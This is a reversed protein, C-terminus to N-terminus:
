RQLDQQGGLPRPNRCLPHASRTDRGRPRGVGVRAGHGATWPARTGVRRRLPGPCEWGAGPVAARVTSWPRHKITKRLLSGFRMQDRQGEHYPAVRQPTVSLGTEERVERIVRAASGEGPQPTGGPIVWDGAEPRCLLMSDGCLVVAWAWGMRLPV